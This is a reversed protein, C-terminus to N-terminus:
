RQVPGPLADASSLTESESRRTRRARWLTVMLGILTLSAGIRLSWPEYKTRVISDGPPVAVARLGHDVRLVEADVGNVTAKWGPTWAAHFVLWGGDSGEIGADVRFAAPRDVRVTGPLFRKGPPLPVAQPGEPVLAGHAPDITAGTLTELVTADDDVAVLRPVVRAAGFRSARRYVNTDGEVVPELARHRLADGAVVARVDFLDALPHDWVVRNHWSFRVRVAELMEAAWPTGLPRVEELDFLGHYRASDPELFTLGGEHAVRGEGAAERVTQSRGAERVSPGSWVLDPMRVLSEVLGGVVLAGAVLSAPLTAKGDPAGLRALVTNTGSAVLWGFALVALHCWGFLQCLLVFLALWVGNPRSIVAMLPLVCFSLAFAEWPIRYTAFAEGVADELPEGAALFLWPVWRVAGLLVGLLLWSSARVYAVGLIRTQAALALSAMIGLTPPGALWALGLTLALLPGASAPPSRQARPAFGSLAYFCWPLWVAGELLARGPLALQVAVLQYALAGALAAFPVLGRRECLLLVGLGGLILSVIALWGRALEPDVVLHLLNPPYWAGLDSTAALPGGLGLSPDWTPLGGSEAARRMAVADLLDNPLEGQGEHLWELTRWHQVGLTREPVALPGLTLAPVVLLLCRALLRPM